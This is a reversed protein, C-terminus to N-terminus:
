ASLNFPCRTTHLDSARQCTCGAADRGLKRAALRGSITIRYRARVTQGWNNCTDNKARAYGKTVLTRLTSGSFGLEAATRYPTDAFSRGSAEYISLLESLANAQNDTLTQTANM